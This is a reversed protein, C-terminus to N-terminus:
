KMRSILFFVFHSSGRPCRFGSDNWRWNLSILSGPRTVLPLSWELHYSVDWISRTCGHLFSMNTDSAAVVDRIEGCCCHFVWANLAHVQAFSQYSCNLDRILVHTSVTSATSEKICSIVRLSWPEPVVPRDADSEGDCVSRLRFEEGPM